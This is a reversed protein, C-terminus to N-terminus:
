INELFSQNQSILYEEVFIYNVAEDELNQCIQEQQENEQKVLDSLFFPPSDAIMEVPIEWFSDYIGVRLRILPKETHIDILIGFLRFKGSEDLTDQGSFNRCNPPHTHLELVANRYAPYDDRAITSGFNRSQSIEEWFYDHKTEDWCVAYLNETFRKAETSNRAHRLIEAFIRSPIGARLEVRAVGEALEPIKVKFPSLEISATMERRKARKFVGNNAIVIEYLPATIPQDTSRLFKREVLNPIKM